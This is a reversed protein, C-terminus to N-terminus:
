RHEWVAEGPIEELLWGRLKDFGVPNLECRFTEGVDLEFLKVNNSCITSYICVELYFIDSSSYGFGDDCGAPAYSNCAGLPHVGSDINEAVLWFENADITALDGFNAGDM